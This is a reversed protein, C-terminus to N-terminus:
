GFAPKLRLFVSETHTTPPKNDTFRSKTSWNERLIEAPMLAKRQVYHKAQEKNHM